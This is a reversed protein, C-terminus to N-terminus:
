NRGYFSCNLEQWFSTAPHLGRCFPLSDLKFAPAQVLSFDLHLASVCCGRGKGMALASFVGQSLTVATGHALHGPGAVLGELVGTGVVAPAQPHLLHEGFSKAWRRRGLDLSGAGSDGSPKLSVGRRRGSSLFIHGAWM